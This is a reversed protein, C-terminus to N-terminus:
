AYRPKWVCDRWSLGCPCKDDSFLRVAKDCYTAFDLNEINVIKHEIQPFEGRSLYLDTRTARHIAWYKGGANVFIHDDHQETMSIPIDHNEAM